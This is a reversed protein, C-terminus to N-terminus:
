QFQCQFQCCVTFIEVHDDPPPVTEPPPVTLRFEDTVNHAEGFLPHVNSPQNSPPVLTLELWVKVNVAVCLRERSARKLCCDIFIEVHDEPPPVVEPPPITLRLEDTVTHAVGLLPQTNSPQNSPLVLTLELSPKVNVAECLRERSARKLCCVTTMEVHDEPPPVAEPPPVTLWCEGTVTRATGSLPQINSPQNSPM